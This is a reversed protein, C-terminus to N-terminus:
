KREGHAKGARQTHIGSPPEIITQNLPQNLCRYAKIAANCSQLVFWLKEPYKGGFKKHFELAGTGFHRKIECICCIM